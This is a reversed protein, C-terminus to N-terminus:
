MQDHARVASLQLPTNTYLQHLPHDRLPLLSPPLLTSSVPHSYTCLNALCEMAVSSGLTVTPCCVSNLDVTLCLSWLTSPQLVVESFHVTHQLVCVKGGLHAAGWLSHTCGRACTWVLAHEAGRREPVPWVQTCTFLLLLLLIGTFLLLSTFVCFYSNAVLPAILSFTVPSFINM